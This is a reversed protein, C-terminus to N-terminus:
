RCPMGAAVPQLANVAICAPMVPMHLNDFPSKVFHVHPTLEVEPPWDADDGLAATTRVFQVVVCEASQGDHVEVCVPRLASVPEVDREVARANSPEGGRMQQRQLKWVIRIRGKAKREKPIALPAFGKDRFDGLGPLPAGDERRPPLLERVHALRLKGLPHDTKRPWAAYEGRVVVHALLYDVDAFLKSQGHGVVDRNESDIVVLLYALVRRSSQRRKRWVERLAPIEGGFQESLHNRIRPELGRDNLKGDRADHRPLGRPPHCAVAPLDGLRDFHDARPRALPNGHWVDDREDALRAARRLHVEALRRPPADVLLYVLHAKRLHEFKELVRTLGHVGDGVQAAECGADGQALREAESCAHRHAVPALM